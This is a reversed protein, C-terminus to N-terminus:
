GKYVLITWYGQRDHWAMLRGGSQLLGEGQTMILAVFFRQSLTFETFLFFREPHCIFLGEIKKTPKTNNYYTIDHPSM